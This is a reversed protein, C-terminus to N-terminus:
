AARRAQERARDELYRAFRELHDKNWPELPVGRMTLVRRLAEADRSYDSGHLPIIGGVGVLDTPETATTLWVQHGGDPNGWTRWVDYTQFVEDMAAPDFAKYTAPIPRLPTFRLRQDPYFFPGDSGWHGITQRTSVAVIPTGAVPRHAQANM